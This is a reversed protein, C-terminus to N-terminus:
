TEKELESAFLPEDDRDPRDPRDPPAKSKLRDMAERWADFRKKLREAEPPPLEELM